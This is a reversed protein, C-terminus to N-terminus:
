LLKKKYIQKSNRTYNMRLLNIKTKSNNFIATEIKKKTEQSENTYFLQKIIKTKLIILFPM